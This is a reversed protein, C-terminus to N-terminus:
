ALKLVVNSFDIHAFLACSEIDFYQVIGNTPGLM